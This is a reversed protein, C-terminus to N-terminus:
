QGLRELIAPVHVQDAKYNGTLVYMVLNIGFRFAIERQWEGGPVTTFQPNGAADMAWASAWDNAGIIVPSVGDNVTEDADMVWLADDAYRGPFTQLLYFARTLVHDPDVPRLPPIDLGSTLRRLAGENVGGFGADRTDFLITGGQALFANLRDFADRSPTPQDETIPWYLLSFFALEDHEPDVGLAGDPEVATRQTLVRALGDLGAQSIMDVSPDGTVVYALYTGNAATLALNDPSLSQAQARAQEVILLSPMLVILAIAGVSAVRPRRLSPLLGRVAMSALLDVIALAMAAALLLPLLNIESGTEYGRTAVSAPLDLTALPPVAPALNLARSTEGAGYFGPPHSPTALTTAFAGASIPMASGSAEGLRGFGDLTTLPRLAITEEDDAVGASLAVIRRLMDVFLGSLPLNSWEPGATTHVLILWGANGGDANERREATVLPTGDALRAWTRANVLPGPQALVQREIRVDEPLPLGELPSDPPFPALPQPTTWSLAGSLTRDGARLPVPVFPDPNAAFIPGAFRLVVGGDAMFQDLRDSQEPTVQGSDPLVIVAPGRDLLAELTGYWTEAFPAM